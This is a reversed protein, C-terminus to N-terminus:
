AEISGSPSSGVVQLEYSQWEALQAVPAVTARWSSTYLTINNMYKYM